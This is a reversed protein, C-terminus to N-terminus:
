RSAPRRTVRLRDTRGYGLYTEPSRLNQWDADAEFGDPQVQVLAGDIGEAGADTLLQQIVMETM